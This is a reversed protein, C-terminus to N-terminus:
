DRWRLEDTLRKEAILRQLLAYRSGAGDTLPGHQALAAVLQEVGAPVSWQPEWGPLENEIRAFDVRPALPANADPDGPVVSCGPVTSAVIDALEGLRHQDVSRGVNFARNHVTELPAKLVSIFASALDEVHVVPCWSDPSAELAVEGAEAAQAIMRNLPSDLRLRPSAGYATAARLSIPSFREDALEALDVEVRVKADDCITHPELDAAETALEGNAAYVEGSLTGGLTASPM